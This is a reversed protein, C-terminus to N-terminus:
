SATPCRQRGAGRWSRSRASTSIATTSSASSTAAYLAGPLASGPLHQQRVDALQGATVLAALFELTRQEAEAVTVRSARVRAVLGSSGHQRQNWDDMRALVEEPQHIALVPGDAVITSTADTVVTAIEIISDSEPKLGTM